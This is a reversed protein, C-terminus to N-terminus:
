SAPRPKWNRLAAWRPDPVSEDCACANQNRDGGCVSCLGQCDERCLARTPLALIAQEGCLPELDVEPGSFFSLALDDAELELDPDVEDGPAPEPVLVFEFPARLDFGYDALCRACAGTLTTALSGQFYLDDGARYYTVDIALPKALRFEAADHQGEALRQNLSEMAASFTAHTPEESIDELRIKM